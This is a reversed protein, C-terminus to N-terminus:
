GFRWRTQSYEGKGFGFATAPAVEFVLAEGGGHHFAGDRVDFHWDSGYKSEYAHAIRTLKADDIVREAQGEIVVDLGEGLLNCGTTLICSPNQALNKAKREDAGTCFYAADDLWVAILPTVHPRGDPRVTSIWFLEAGEIRERGRAWDTPAAGESSFRGDLKTEPGDIAM